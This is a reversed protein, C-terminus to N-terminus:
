NASSTARPTMARPPVGIIKWVMAIQSPYQPEVSPAFYESGLLSTMQSEMSHSAAACPNSAITKTAAQSLITGPMSIAAARSFRGDTMTVPPGISGPRTGPSSASCFREVMACCAPRNLRPSILASRRISYSSWQIGPDPQQAPMYVAFEMPHM